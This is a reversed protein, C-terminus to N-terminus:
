YMREKGRTEGEIEGESVICERKERKEKENVRM